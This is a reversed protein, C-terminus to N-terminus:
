QPDYITGARRDNFNAGGMDRMFNGQIQNGLGNIRSSSYLSGSVSGMGPADLAVPRDPTPLGNAKRESQALEHRSWAMTDVRSLVQHELRAKQQQYEVETLQGSARQASLANFEPELEHRVLKEFHDLQAASPATSECSVLVLALLANFCAFRM